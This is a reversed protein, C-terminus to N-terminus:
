ESSHKPLELVFTAGKGPGESHVTLAGGLEKAALAGSHLGFGHGDKRTTFGHNFIRTLNESAIGVGNDQVSIAILNHSKLAIALTLRGHGATVSSVAHKANTILNVLIELVKHKDVLIDPVKEFQRIVQIEHRALSDASIGL